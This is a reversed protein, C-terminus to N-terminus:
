INEKRKIENFVEKGCEKFLEALCFNRYAPLKSYLTNVDINELTTLKTFDGNVTSIEYTLSEETPILKQADAIVRRINNNPNKIQKDIEHINKILDMIDKSEKYNM